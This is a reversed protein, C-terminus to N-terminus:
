YYGTFLVKVVTSYYLNAYLSVKSLQNLSRHHSKQFNAYRAHSNTSPQRIYERSGRKPTGFIRYRFIIGKEQRPKIANSNHLLYILLYISAERKFGSPFVQIYAGLCNIKLFFRLHECFSPGFLGHGKRYLFDTSIRLTRSELGFLM